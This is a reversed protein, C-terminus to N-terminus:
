FIKIKGVVEAVVAEETLVSDETKEESSETEEVAPASKEEVSITEEAPAPAPALAPTPEIVTDEVTPVAKEKISATEEAPTPAPAPAPTTEDVVPAVEEISTAEPTIKAEVEAPATGVSTAPTSQIKM